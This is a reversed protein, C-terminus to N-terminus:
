KVEYEAIVWDYHQLELHKGCYQCKGGNLLSISAGCNKCAYVIADNSASTFVGNDRILHLNLKRTEARIQQDIDRKLTLTTQVKLHQGNEDIYFDKLLYSTLRCEVVDRCTKLYDSLDCLAFPATEEANEAYHISALKNTLNGVFCEESFLPDSRRLKHKTVTTRSAGNKLNIMEMVAVIALLGAILVTWGFTPNVGRARLVNIIFLGMSFFFVPLVIYNIPNRNRMQTPTEALYFCSVKEQFDELHFKTGCYDCGDTLSELTGPNACNPCIYGGAPSKSQMLYYQGERNKPEEVWLIQRNRYWVKKYSVHDKVTCLMHKGDHAYSFLPLQHDEERPYSTPHMYEYHIGIKRSELRKKNLYHQYWLNQTVSSFPNEKTGKEDYWHTTERKYRNIADAFGQNLCQCEWTLKRDEGLQSLSDKIVEGLNDKM